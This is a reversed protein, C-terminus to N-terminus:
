KGNAKKTYAKSLRQLVTIVDQREDPVDVGIQIVSKTVVEVDMFESLTDLFRKLKAEGAPDTSPFTITKM